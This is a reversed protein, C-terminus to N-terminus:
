ALARDAAIGGLTLAAAIHVGGMGNAASISGNCDGAAFLNPLPRSSPDLVEADPSIRAGGGTINAGVVMPVVTYPPKTIGFGSTPFVVRGFEDRAARSAVTENWRRVTAELVDAPAGIARAVDILTAFQKRAGPVDALLQAKAAATRADCLYYAPQGGLARLRRLREREPGAEDHFRAGDETVAICDEVLRSAILVAEPVIEMNVLQGGGKEIMLQGGGLNTDLGPFPCNRDLGSEYRGRLESSAQYGGTAVIVGRRARIEVAAGAPGDAVVGTVAGASTTLEVVRRRLLVDAGAAALRAGLVERFQAPESMVVTRDVQHQHPRSVFREFGIGLARLREFTAGSREAFRQAVALDFVLHPYDARKREVEALIDAVLLDASDQIGHERELSTGAFALYGTSFAANGGLGGSAELLAVSACAETAREAAALGAPGAGVIVLDVEVAADMAVEM